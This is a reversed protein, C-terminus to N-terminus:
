DDEPRIRVAQHVGEMAGIVQEDLTHTDGIV